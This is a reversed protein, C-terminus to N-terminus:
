VDSERPILGLVVRGLGDFGLCIFGEWGVPAERRWGVPRADARRM